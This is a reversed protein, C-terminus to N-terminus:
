AKILGKEIQRAITRFVAQAFALQVEPDKSSDVAQHCASCGFALMWNPPKLGMGSFGSMRFHCGVTTEPNHNCCPLRILCTEGRASQTLKSMRAVVHCGAAKWERM